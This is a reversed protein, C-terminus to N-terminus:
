ILSDITELKAFYFDISIQVLRADLDLICNSDRRLVNHWTVGDDITTQKCNTELVMGLCIGNVFYAFEFRKTTNM